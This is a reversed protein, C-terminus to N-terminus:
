PKPLRPASRIEDVTFGEFLGNSWRQTAEVWYLNQDDLSFVADEARVDGVERRTAECAEVRCSSITAADFGTGSDLWVLEGDVVAVARLLSDSKFFVQSPGGAVPWGVIEHPCFSDCQTGDQSRAVSAYLMGGSVAISEVGDAPRTQLDFASAPAESLLEDPLLTRPPARGYDGARNIFSGDSWFLEDAEAHVQLYDINRVPTLLTPGGACGPQACRYITRDKLVGFYVFDASFFAPSLQLGPLDEIVVQPDSADPLAFSSYGYYGEGYSLVGLRDGFIQPLAFSGPRLLVLTEKCRARGCRYLGTTQKGGYNTFYLYGGAATLNGLTANPLKVISASASRNPNTPTSTGDNADPDVSKGGLNVNGGCGLLLALAAVYGVVLTKKPLSM